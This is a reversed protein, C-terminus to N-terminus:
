VLAAYRMKLLVNSVSKYRSEWYLVVEKTVDALSPYYIPKGDADAGSLYPGFYFGWPSDTSNPQLNFGTVEYQFEQRMKETDELKGLDSVIDRFRFKKGVVDYNSLVNEITMKCM